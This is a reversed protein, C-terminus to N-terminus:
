VNLLSTDHKSKVRDYVSMVRAREEIHCSALATKEAKKIFGYAKKGTLVPTEKIPRAMIVGQKLGKNKNMIVSYLM